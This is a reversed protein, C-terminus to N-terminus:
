CLSWSFQITFAFIHNSHAIINFKVKRMTGDEVDAVAPAVDAEGVMSYEEGAVDGPALAGLITLVGM